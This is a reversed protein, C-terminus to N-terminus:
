QIATKPVKQLEALIADNADPIKSSPQVQQQVRTVKPMRGDRDLIEKAAAQQISLDDSDLNNRLVELAKPVLESMAMRLKDHEKQIAREAGEAMKFKLANMRHHYAASRRLKLALGPPLKLLSASGSHDMAYLFDAEALRVAQIREVQVSRKTAEKKLRAIEKLNKAEADLQDQTPEEEKIRKYAGSFNRKFNPDNKRDKPATM